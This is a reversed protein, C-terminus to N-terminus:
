LQIKLIHYLNTTSHEELMSVFKPLVKTIKNFREGFDSNELKLKSNCTIEREINVQNSKKLLMLSNITVPMLNLFRKNFASFLRPKDSIFHELDSINNVQLQKVIRDDFLFPLILFLRATDIAKIKQLVLILICSAIAENNYTYYIEKM